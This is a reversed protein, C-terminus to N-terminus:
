LSKNRLQQSPMTIWHNLIWRPSKYLMQEWSVLLLCVPQMWTWFWLEVQQKKRKREAARLLKNSPSHSIKSQWVCNVMQVSQNTYEHSSRYVSKHRKRWSKTYRTVSGATMKATTFDEHILGTTFILSSRFLLLSPSSLSVMCIIFLTPDFCNNSAIRFCFSNNCFM